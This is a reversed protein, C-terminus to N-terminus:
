FVFDFAITTMVSVYSRVASFNIHWAAAVARRPLRWLIVRWRRGVKLGSTLYKSENLPRSENQLAEKSNPNRILAVSGRWTM